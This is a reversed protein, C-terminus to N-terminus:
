KYEQLTTNQLNGMPSRTIGMLFLGYLEVHLKFILVLLKAQIKIM